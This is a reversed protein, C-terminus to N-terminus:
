VGASRALGMWSKRVWEAYQEVGDVREGLAATQDMLSRSFAVAEEIRDETEEPTFSSSPSHSPSLLRFESLAYVTSLRLRLSYWATGQAESGAAKALDQAVHAVHSLHPVPTPFPLLELPNSLYTGRPAALLALAEPLKDLGALGNYRLRAEMGVRYGEEGRKGSERVARVMARRAERLWEEVLAMAPGTREQEGKAGASGQGTALAVLEQRSRSRKGGNGILLGKLSFDGFLSSSSDAAPPSPYLAHLTRESYPETPTLPAPLDLSARSLTSARFPLSHPPHLLPVAARTLQRALHASPPPPPTM